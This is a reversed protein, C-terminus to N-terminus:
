ASPNLMNEMITLRLEIKEIRRRLYASELWLCQDARIGWRNGAKRVLIREETEYEEEKEIEVGDVVETITRVAM